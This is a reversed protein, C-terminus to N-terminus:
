CLVLGGFGCNFDLWFVTTHPNLDWIGTHYLCHNSGVYGSPEDSCECSGV